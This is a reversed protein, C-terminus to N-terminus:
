AGDVVVIRDGKIGLKDLKFAGLGSRKRGGVSGDNDPPPEVARQM